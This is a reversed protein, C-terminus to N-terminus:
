RYWFGVAPVYVSTLVEELLGRADEFGGPRPYTSLSLMLGGTGRPAQSVAWGQKVWEGTTGGRHAFVYLVVIEQDGARRGHLLQGHLPGPHPCGAPAPIDVLQKASVQWGQQPLCSLPSHVARWDVGYVLSLHVERDPSSYKLEELVDAGLYNFIRQDVPVQSGQLEGIQEPVDKFSVRYRVEPARRAWLLNAYAAGALLLVIAVLYRRTDARV